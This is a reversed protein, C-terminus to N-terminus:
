AVQLLRGLKTLTRTLEAIKLDIESLSTQVDRQQHFLTQKRQDISHNRQEKSTFQQSYIGEAYTVKSGILLFLLAYIRLSQQGVKGGKTWSNLWVKPSRVYHIQQM